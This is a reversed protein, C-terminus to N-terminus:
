RASQFVPAGTTADISSAYAFFTADPTLAHVSLTLPGAASSTLGPVEVHSEVRRAALAFDRSGAISGDGRYAVVRLTAPQDGANILTVNSRRSDSQEIGLLFASEGSHFLRELEIAPVAQGIRGGDPLVNDTTSRVVLDGSSSEILLAGGASEEGFIEGAVDSWSRSERAALLVEVPQPSSPSPQQFLTLRAGADLETPNHIRLTSRWVSGGTGPSRAIAPVLIRHDFFLEGATAAAVLDVEVAGAESSVLRLRDAFEGREGSQFAIEIPRSGGPELRAPLAAAITFGAAEGLLSASDITMPATGANFAVLTRTTRRGLPVSGFHVVSRSVTLRPRATAISIGGDTNMAGPIAAASPGSASPAPFDAIRVPAFGSSSPLARFRLRAVTGDPLGQIPHSPDYIVIGLSGPIATTRSSATFESPVPVEIKSGLVPDSDLILKEPDWEVVFAIAAVAAGGGHLDIAIETFGGPVATASGVTLHWQPEAGSALQSALLISTAVGLLPGLRVLSFSSRHM